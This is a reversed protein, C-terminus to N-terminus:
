FSSEGVAVVAVELVVFLAAFLVVAYSVDDPLSEDVLEELSEEDHSELSLFFGGGTAVLFREEVVVEVGSAFFRFAAGDASDM